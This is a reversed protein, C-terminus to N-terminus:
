RTNELKNLVDFGFNKNIEKVVKDLYDTNSDGVNARTTLGFKNLRQNVKNKHNNDINTKTNM